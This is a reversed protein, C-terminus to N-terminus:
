QRVIVSVTIPAHRDFELLLPFTDGPELNEKLDVLMLHKGAPEFIVRGQAPIPVTDLPSMQVVGEGHLTEHPEVVQAVESSASLLSDAGGANEIVLYVAGHGGASVPRAWADRVSIEPVNQDRGSGCGTVLLMALLTLLSIRAARVTPRQDM